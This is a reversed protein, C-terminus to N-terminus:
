ARDSGANTGTRPANRLCTRYRTCNRCNLSTTWNPPQHRDVSAGEDLLLYIYLHSGGWRLRWIVDDGRDRLEDSVYSGGVKELTHFDLQSVRAERVSGTLLDRIMEPHSLLKDSNDHPM